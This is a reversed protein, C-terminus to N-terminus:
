RLEALMLKIEDDWTKLKSPKIMNRDIEIIPVTTKVMTQMNYSKEDLLELHPPINSIFSKRALYVGEAIANWSNEILSTNIYYSAGNLAEIIDYRPKVGELIVSKDNKICVPVTDIDGFIKLRLNPEREHLKSFISYSDILNKHFYTGVIIAHNQTSVNTKAKDIAAIEEDAGNPSIFKKIEHYRSLLESSYRSEASIIDCYKFSRSILRGLWWLEIRRLKPIQYNSDNDFPLVNSLHFWKANAAIKKMPLNYSYYLDLQKPSNQWPKLYLQHNFARELKTESIYTIENNKFHQLHERFANHVIFQAGGNCNFWESYALLRKLGGGSAASAFNFLYGKYKM